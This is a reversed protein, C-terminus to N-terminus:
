ECLECWHSRLVHIEKRKISIKKKKKEREDVKTSCVFLFVSKKESSAIAKQKIMDMTRTQTHKKTRAFLELPIGDFIVYQSTVLICLIRVVIQKKTTTAKEFPRENDSSCKIENLVILKECLQEIEVHM